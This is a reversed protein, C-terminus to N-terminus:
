RPTPHRSRSRRSPAIPAIISTNHSMAARVMRAWLSRAAAAFRAYDYSDLFFGDPSYGGARTVSPAPNHFGDVSAPHNAARPSCGAAGARRGADTKGAGDVGDIAVRIRRDPHLTAITPALRDLLAPDRL